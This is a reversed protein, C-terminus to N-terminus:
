AAAAGKARQRLCDLVAADDVPEFDRYYQGVSRLAPETRLCIVEDALPAVRALGQASAVPLACALWAPHQARVAQLAARLTAGTALGDDVVLVHRGQVPVAPAIAAYRRRREKLRAWQAQREAQLWAADAGARVAWDDPQWVRGSEDVAGVALEPQGPACLKHVLLVDWDGHLSAALWVALPVGGRPIALVLPWRDRWGQLRAALQRAADLRDAFPEGEAPHRTSM